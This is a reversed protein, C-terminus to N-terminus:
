LGLARVTATDLNGTVPLHNDNQFDAIANRTQGGIVGDTPGPSYGLRTLRDQASSALSMPATSDDTYGTSGYAGPEDYDYYGGGYGYYPYGYDYIGSDFLVWAGNYFRYRHHNWEHVRNHDWHRATEQPVRFDRGDGRRGAFQQAAANNQNFNRQQVQANNVAARNNDDVAHGGFAISPANRQGRTVSPQFNRPSESRALPATRFQTQPQTAIRPASPARMVNPSAVRPATSFQPASMM